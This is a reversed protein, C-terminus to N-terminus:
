DGCDIFPICPKEGVVEKLLNFNQDFAKIKTQFDFYDYVLIPAIFDVMAVSGTTDIPIQLFKFKDDRYIEIRVRNLEDYVYEISAFGFNRNTFPKFSKDFYKILRVNENKDYEFLTIAPAFLEDTLKGNKDCREIRIPKNNHYSIKEHFNNKTEKEEVDSKIIEYINNQPEVLNFKVTNKENSLNCSNFFSAFIITYFYKSIKM